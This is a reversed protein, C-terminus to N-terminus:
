DISGIPADSESIPASPVPLAKRSKPLTVPRETGERRAADTLWLIREADAIDRGNSRIAQRVQTTAIDLVGAATWRRKRNLGPRHGALIGVVAIERAIPLRGLGLIDGGHDFLDVLRAWGTLRPSPASYVPSRLIPLLRPQERVWDGLKTLISGGSPGRRALDEAQDLLTALRKAAIALDGLLVRAKAVHEDEPADIRDFWRVLDPGWPRGAFREFDERCKAVVADELAPDDVEFRLVKSRASRKPTKAMRAISDATTTRPRAM